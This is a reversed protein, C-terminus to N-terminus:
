NSVGSISASAEGNAGTVSINIIVDTADTDVSTDKVKFSFETLDPGTIQTDPLKIGTASVVANGFLTIGEGQFSAKITTGASLPNGNQDTVTFTVEQSGDSPVNITAPSVESIIPIGSFLVIVRAQIENNNEDATRAEITAFGKGLTPHEPLPPASILNVSCSGNGTLGSGDIMGGDTTFYVATGPTCYNGYKDGAYATITNIEGWQGWGAFNLKEAGVGFHASDPLGGHITIPVAQSRITSGSVDVSALVQVVGAITGSVLNGAVQGYLDTTVVQPSIFEGGGPGSGLSFNVPIDKGAAIGSSDLVQFIITTNDLGGTGFVGINTNTVSSLIISAPGTRGSPQPIPTGTSDGGTGGTGSVPSLFIGPMSIDRDPVALAQTTDSLYGEKSVILTLDVTSDVGLTILFSGDSATQDVKQSDPSFIRVVADAIPDNTIIDFVNGNINIPTTDSEPDTCQGLFVFVLVIVMIHLLHKM